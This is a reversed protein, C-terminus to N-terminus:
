MALAAPALNASGLFGSAALYLQTHMFFPGKPGKKAQAGPNASSAVM